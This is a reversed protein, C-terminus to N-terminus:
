VLICGLQFFFFSHTDYGQCDRKFHNLKIFCDESWQRDVINDSPSKDLTTKRVVNTSYYYRFSYICQFHAQISEHSPCAPM